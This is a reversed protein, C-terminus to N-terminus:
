AARRRVLTSEDWTPSDNVVQQTLVPAISDKVTNATAGIAVGPAGEDLMFRHVLGNFIGDSGRRTFVTDCESNSLFRNYFRADWIRGVFFSGSGNEEAAISANRSATDSTNGATMSGLTTDNESALGDVTYVRIYGRATTFQIRMVVFYLTNISYSGTTILTNADSDLARGGGQFSSGTKTLTMRSLNTAGASGISLGMLTATATTTPYAWCCMTGAAVNQLATLDSGTVRLDVWDSAAFLVSM